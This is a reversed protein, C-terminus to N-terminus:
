PEIERRPEAPPLRNRKRWVRVFIMPSLSDTAIEVCRKWAAQSKRQIDEPAEPHIFGWPARFGKGEVELRWHVRLSREDPHMRMTNMARRLDALATQEIARIAEPTFVALSEYNLPESRMEQPRVVVQDEEYASNDKPRWETPDEDFNKRPEVKETVEPLHVKEVESGELSM